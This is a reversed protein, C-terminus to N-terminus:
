ARKKRLGEQKELMLDDRLKTLIEGLWNTGQWTERDHIRKDKVGLGIGWIKDKPSAEVLTTGATEFLKERMEPNQTFKAKNGRYVIDKANKNWTALDFNKVQRGLRKQDAPHEAKMIEKLTEDDGFLRAKEAMMFQEATNYTEGDVTFTAPSWQSFPREGWFFTFKEMM